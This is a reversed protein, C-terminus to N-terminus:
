TLYGRVQAAIASNAGANRWAVPRGTAEHLLTALQPGLTDEIQDAGVGAASSDGIILLRTGAEGEGIQGKPRGRPPPLRPVTRRVGLGKFLAVPLLLWSVPGALFTNM